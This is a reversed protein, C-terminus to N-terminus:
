RASLRKLSFALSESILEKALNLTESLSGPDTETEIVM